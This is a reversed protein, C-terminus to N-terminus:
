VLTAGIPGGVLLHATPNQFIESKKVKKLFRERPM